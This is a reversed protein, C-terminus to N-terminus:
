ANAATVLTSITAATYYKTSRQNLGQPLVEIISNCTVQAVGRVSTTPYFHCTAPAFGNLEGGEAAIDTNGGPADIGYIYATFIQAM